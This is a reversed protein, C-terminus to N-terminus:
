KIDDNELLDNAVRVAEAEIKRADEASNIEPDIMLADVTDHWNRGDGDKGKLHAFVDEYMVTASYAEGYGGLIGEGPAALEIGKSGKKDSDPTIAVSKIGKELDYGGNANRYVTVMYQTSTGGYQPNHQYWVWGHTKPNRSAWENTKPNYADFPGLKGSHAAKMIRRGLTDTARKLKDNREASFIYEQLEGLAVEEPTLSTDGTGPTPQKDVQVTKDPMMPQEATCGAVMGGAMLVGLVRGGAKVAAKLIRAKKDIPQITESM